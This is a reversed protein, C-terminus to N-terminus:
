KERTKSSPARPPASPAHSGLERSKKVSESLKRMKFAKLADKDKLVQKMYEPNARIEKISKAIGEIYSALKENKESSKEAIKSLREGTLSLKEIDTFDSEIRSLRERFKKTMIKEAKKREAEKELSLKTLKVLKEAFGRDLSLDSLVSVAEEDSYGESVLRKAISYVNVKGLLQSLADKKEMRELTSRSMKELLERNKGSAEILAEIKAMQRKANRATLHKLEEKFLEPSGHRALALIKKASGADLGMADLDALIKEEPSHQELLERITQTIEYGHRASYLSPKKKGFLSIAM